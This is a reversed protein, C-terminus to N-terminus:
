TQTNWSSALLSQYLKSSNWFMYFYKSIKRSMWWSQHLKVICRKYPIKNFQFYGIFFDNRDNKCVFHDYPIGKQLTLSLFPITAEGTTQLSSTAYVLWQLAASVAGAIYWWTPSIHHMTCKKGQAKRRWERGSKYLFCKNQIIMMGAHFIYQVPFLPCASWSKGQVIYGLNIYTYWVSHLSCDLVM